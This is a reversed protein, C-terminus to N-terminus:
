TEDIVSYCVGFNQIPHLAVAQRLVETGSLVRQMGEIVALCYAWESVCDYAGRNIPATGPHGTKNWEFEQGAGQRDIGLTPGVDRM